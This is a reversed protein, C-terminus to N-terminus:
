KKILLWTDAYKPYDKRIQYVRKRAELEDTFSNVCVRYYGTESHLVIPSFGQPTLEQKYRNANENSSFSGIIVFYTNSENNIRDEQKDFTFTESQMRVPKKKATEYMKDSTPNKRVEPRKAPKEAPVSFVKTEPNEAEATLEPEDSKKLNEIVKCGSLLVSFILGAFLIKKM